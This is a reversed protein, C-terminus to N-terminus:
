SERERMEVDVRRREPGMMPRLLSIGGLLVRIGLNM